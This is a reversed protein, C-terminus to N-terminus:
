APRCGDLSKTLVCGPAALCEDKRLTACDAGLHTQGATELARCGLALLTFLASRLFPM